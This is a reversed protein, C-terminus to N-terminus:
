YACRTYMTTGDSIVNIEGYKKAPISISDKNLNVYPAASPLTVTITSSGSNYILVHISRGAIMTNALSFSANASITAKVIGFDTNINAVSTVSNCSAPLIKYTTSGLKLSHIAM